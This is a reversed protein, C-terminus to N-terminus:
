SKNHVAMLQAAMQREGQITSVAESHSDGNDRLQLYLTLWHERHSIRQFTRDFQAVRLDQVVVNDANM